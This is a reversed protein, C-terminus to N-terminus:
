VKRMVHQCGPLAGEVQGEVETKILLEAVLDVDECSDPWGRKGLLLLSGQLLEHFIGFFPDGLLM